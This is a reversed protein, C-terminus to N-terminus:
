LGESNVSGLNSPMPDPDNVRLLSTTTLRVLRDYVVLFFGRPYPSAWSSVSYPDPGKLVMLSKPIDCCLIDTGRVGTLLLQCKQFTAVGLMAIFIPVSWRDLLADLRVSM